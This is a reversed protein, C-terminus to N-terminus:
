ERTHTESEFVPHLEEDAVILLDDVDLGGRIADNLLQHLANRFEDLTVSM